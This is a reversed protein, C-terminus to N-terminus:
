NYSVLQRVGVERVICKEGSILTEILVGGGKLISRTRLTLSLFSMEYKRLLNGSTKMTPYIKGNSSSRGEVM